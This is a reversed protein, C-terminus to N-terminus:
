RWLIFKFESVGAWTQNIWEALRWQCRNGILQGVLHWPYLSCSVHWDQGGPIFAAMSVFNLRYRSTIYHVSALFSRFFATSTGLSTSIKCFTWLPSLTHSLTLIHPSNNLPFWFVADNRCIHFPKTSIGLAKRRQDDSLQSTWTVDLILHIENPSSFWMSWTLGISDSIVNLICRWSM